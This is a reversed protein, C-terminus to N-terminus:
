SRWRMSLAVVYLGRIRTSYIFHQAALEALALDLLSSRTIGTIARLDGCFVAAVLGGQDTFLIELEGLLRQPPRSL